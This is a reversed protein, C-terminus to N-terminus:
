IGLQSAIGQMATIVFEIHEKLEVGLDAAGNVIDERNVSRAFGKSKMKKLVSEPKLGTLSRTPQVLATATIMGTLEDVSFLSKDLATRRPLGLYTAHSKIAYIVEEPCGRERLVESGRIPHDAPDPWREYDFDHLLGTIGWTEVDGDFRPAYARMGAEVSLAHKILGDAKTFENLLSWAEPRTM